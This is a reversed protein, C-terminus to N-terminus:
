TLWDKRDPVQHHCHRTLWLLMGIDRSSVGGPHVTTTSQYFVVASLLLITQNGSRVGIYIPSFAEGGGRFARRLQQIATMCRDEKLWRKQQDPNATRSLQRILHSFGALKARYRFFIAAPPYELIKLHRLSSLQPTTWLFALLSLTFFPADNSFFEANFFRTSYHHDNKPRM